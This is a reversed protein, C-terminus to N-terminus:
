DQIEMAHLNIELSMKLRKLFKEITCLPSALQQELESLPRNRSRM